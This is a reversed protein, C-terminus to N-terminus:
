MIVMYVKGDVFAVVDYNAYGWTEITKGGGTTIDKAIPNGWALQVQEKTMGLTVNGAKIQKWVSSSWKYKQYPDYNLLSSRDAFLQMVESSNMPYTKLTQGSGSKFVISFEGNDVPLVDTVTVKSFREWGEFDNVWYTRGIFKALSGQMAKKILGATESSVVTMKADGFSIDAQKWDADWSIKAGLVDSLLSAPIMLEGKETIPAAKLRIPNGNLTAQVDGAKFFITTEGFKANIGGNGETLTGGLAQIVTKASVFVRGDVQKAYKLNNRLSSSVTVSKSIGSSTVTVQTKGVGTVTLTGNQQQKILYPKEVDVKANATPVKIKAGNSYTEQIDVKLSDGVFPKTDSISVSLNTVVPVEVPKIEDDKYLVWSGDSKQAYIVESMDSSGNDVATKVIGSLGPVQYKLKWRDQYEGTTWVTGDKLTVILTRSPDYVIHVADQTITVPIIRGNDDFNYTEYVVVKGSDYLLAVRSETVAMSKVSSAQEVTGLKKFGDPKTDDEFLLDGNSALAAFDMRGYGILLINSLKKLQKKGMWVTGDTKLVYGGSVQKVGTVGDVVEPANMSWSILRGDRTVGNGQYLDGSISAITGPTHIIRNGNYMTWMSGDSMLYTNKGAIDQIQLKGEEAFATGTTWHTSVLGCLIGILLTFFLSKKLKM